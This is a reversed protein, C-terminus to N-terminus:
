KRISNTKTSNSNSDYRTSNSNYNGPNRKVSNYKSYKGNFSNANVPYDAMSSSRTQCKNGTFSNNKTINKDTNNNNEMTADENNNDNMNEMPMIEEKIPWSLGDGNPYGAPLNIPLFWLLLNDGFVQRFNRNFGIDYKQNKMLDIDLTEITTLNSSILKFHFKTFNFDVITFGLLIINNLLIAINKYNIDSNEKKDTNIMTKIIEFSYPTYTILLGFSTLFFYCLLQIFFKKNYFGICNDVWPCHHDMNLICLNCISCHHTREPKFVQCILCYRKKKFDEDGIHFGWYVPTTGPNTKSTLFLSIALLVFLAHFIIIRMMYLINM